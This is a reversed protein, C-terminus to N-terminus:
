KSTKRSNTKSKKAPATKKSSKATPNFDICLQVWYDLDRQLDIGVPDVLLFGKLIRGTFDMPRCGKKKLSQKYLGPDIRVMLSDKIIGVTMKNDIMYCLGGMMKKAEFKVHKEKLIESLREELHKDYAM